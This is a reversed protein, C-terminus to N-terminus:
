INIKLIESQFSNNIGRAKGYKKNWLKISKSKIPKEFIIWSVNESFPSTTLSGPYYYYTKLYNSNLKINIKKKLKLCNDFVDNDGHDLFIAVVLYQNIKNKHVLHAEMPYKYNDISHESPNHFHIHDLIFVHDNFFIFNSDSFIYNFNNNKKDFKLNGILNKDLYDIKILNNNNLGIRNSIINIPSQRYNNDTGKYFILFILFFILINKLM